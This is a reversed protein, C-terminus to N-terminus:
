FFLKYPLTKYSNNIFQLIYPYIILFVICIRVSLANPKSLSRTHKWAISYYILEQISFYFAIRNMYKYYYGIISLLTGILLYLFSTRYLFRNKEDKINRFKKGLFLPVFLVLFRVFIFYGAGGEYPSTFYYEVKDQVYGLIIQSNIIYFFTILLFFMSFMHIILKNNKRKETPLFYILVYFSSIIASTHFSSAILVFIIYILLKQKYLYRTGFLIIAVAMFQRMTNLSSAYHLAIFCFISFKFDIYERLEWLRFIILFYIIVGIAFLYLQESNIKSFISTFFAFGYDYWNYNKARFVSIYTSTDIGVEESRFGAVISLLVCLIILISIQGKQEVRKAVITSTILIFLYFLVSFPYELLYNM